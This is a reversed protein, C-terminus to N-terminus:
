FFNFTSGRSEAFVIADTGFTKAALGIIMFTSEWKKLIYCGYGIASLKLGIKM